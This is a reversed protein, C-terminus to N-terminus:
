TDIQENSIKLDIIRLKLQELEEASQIEAQKEVEFTPHTNEPTDVLISSVPIEESAAHHVDSFDPTNSSQAESLLTSGTEIITGSSTEQSEVSDTTILSASFVPVIGGTASQASTSSSSSHESSVEVEV